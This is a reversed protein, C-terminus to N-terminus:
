ASGSASHVHIKNEYDCGSILNKINEVTNEAGEEIASRILKEFPRMFLELELLEFSFTLLTSDKNNESEFLYTNRYPHTIGKFSFKEFPEYETIEFISQIEQGQDKRMQRAKAGVFVKDGDLPEFESVEPAWKPYNEFFKEGVFHFVEEVPKNIQISGKGTVPKTQDFPLKFM